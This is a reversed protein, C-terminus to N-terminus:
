VLRIDRGDGDYWFYALPDTARLESALAFLFLRLGPTAPSSITRCVKLISRIRERDNLVALVRFTKWGFHREHLREAHAALYARIKREFSTQRINSRSIPMTGRDVEVLFCRRTGDAFRLGFSLDPVVSIECVIGGHSLQAHLAFPNSPKQATNPFETLLEEPHILSLGPHDRAALQVAVYFDMVELQHEIFPRGANQNKRQWEVDAREDILRAGRDGLAYVM